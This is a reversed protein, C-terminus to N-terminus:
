AMPIAGQVSQADDRQRSEGDQVQRGPSIRQVGERALRIIGPRDRAGDPRERGGRRRFERRDLGSRVGLRQRPGQETFDRRGACARGCADASSPGGGVAM